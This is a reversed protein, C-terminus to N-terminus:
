AVKERLEVEHLVEARPIYFARRTLKEQFIQSSIQFVRLAASPFNGGATSTGALVTVNL